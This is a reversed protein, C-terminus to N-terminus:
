YVSESERVLLVIQAFNTKLKTQLENGKETEFIPQWKINNITRM